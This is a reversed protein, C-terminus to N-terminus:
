HAGPALWRCSSPSSSGSWATRSSAAASCRLLRSRLCRGLALVICGSRNARPDSSGIPDPPGDICVLALPCWGIREVLAMAARVDANGRPEPTQQWRGGPLQNPETFYKVSVQCLRRSPSVFPEVQDGWAALMLICRASEVVWAAICLRQEANCDFHLRLQVRSQKSGRSLPKQKQPWVHTGATTKAEVRFESLGSAAEPSLQRRWM